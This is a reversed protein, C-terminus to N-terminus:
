KLCLYRNGNYGDLYGKHFGRGYTDKYIKTWSHNISPLPIKSLVERIGYKSCDKQGQKKGGDYGKRYGDSFGNKNNSAAIASTATVSLVFGLVLLVTFAKKIRGCKRNVM